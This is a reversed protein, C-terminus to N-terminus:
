ELLKLGFGENETWYIQFMQTKRRGLKDSLSVRSWKGPEFRRPFVARNQNFFM